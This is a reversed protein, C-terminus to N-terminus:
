YELLFSLFYIVLPSGSCLVPSRSVAGYHALHSFSRFLTSVHMRIASDGQQADSVLVVNCVSEAGVFM